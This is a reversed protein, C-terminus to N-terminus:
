CHHVIGVCSMRSILAYLYHLVSCESYGCLSLIWVHAFSLLDRLLAHTRTVVTSVRVYVQDCVCMQACLCVCMCVCVENRLSNL